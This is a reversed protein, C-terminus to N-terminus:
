FFWWWVGGVVVVVVAVVVVVVVVVVCGFVNRKGQVIRVTHHGCWMPHRCQFALM